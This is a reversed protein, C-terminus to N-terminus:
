KPLKQAALKAYRSLDNELNKIYESEKANRNGDANVPQGIRNIYGKQLGEQFYESLKGFEEKPIVPELLNLYNDNPLPPPKSPKKFRHFLNFKSGSSKSSSAEGGGGGAEAAHSLLLLSITLLLVVSFRTIRM